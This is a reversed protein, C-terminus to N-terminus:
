ASPHMCSDPGPVKKGLYLSMDMNNHLNAQLYGTHDKNLGIGPQDIDSKLGIQALTSPCIPNGESIAFWQRRATTGDETACPELTVRGNNFEKFDPENKGDRSEVLTGSTVCMKADDASRVQGFRGGLNAANYKDSPADCIYFEFEQEANSVEHLVKPSSSGALTDFQFTAKKKLADNYGVLNGKSGSKLKCNFPQKAPQAHALAICVAVFGFLAAKM